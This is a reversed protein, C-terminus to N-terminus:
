PVVEVTPATTPADEPAVRPQDGTVVETLVLVSVVAVVLILLALPLLYTRVWTPEAKEEYYLDDDVV